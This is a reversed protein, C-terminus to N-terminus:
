EKDQPKPRGDPTRVSPNQRAPTNASTNVNRQPAPQVQRYGNGNNPNQQQTAPRNGSSERVPNNRQINAPTRNVPTNSNVPQGTNAITTAPRTVPTNGNVQRGTNTTAAPRTVPRTNVPQTTNAPDRNVTNNRNFVPNAPRNNNNIVDSRTDPTRPTGTSADPQRIVPTSSAPRNNVPPATNNNRNPLDNNNVQTNSNAPRYERLTQVRAPAVRQPRNDAAVPQANVRPRYITYQNNNLQAGPRSSGRVAVPRVPSGTYRQVDQPDPGYVRGPRNSGNNIITTNNIVTTNNIITVNRTENIYYNNVHPSSIYQHPVFCWYNSPPNYSTVSISLNPGLPAWGYYDPSTRWSVWAPAWEQGPVWAWGYAPEYFWRGYHFAAWGWPYDSAWTWGMDTYVWHGNSAYPKFGAGVSPMWVYGYGPYDVWQGYPSLEDYFSQYSVEPEPAYAPAPAPTPDNQVVYTPKCASVGILCIALSYLINKM